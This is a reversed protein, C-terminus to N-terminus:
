ADSVSGGSVASTTTQEAPKGNGCGSIVCLAICVAAILATKKKMIM